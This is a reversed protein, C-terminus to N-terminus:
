MGSASSASRELQHEEKRLHALELSKGLNQNAVKSENYINTVYNSFQSAWLHGKNENFCLIARETNAAIERMLPMTKDLAQREWPALASREAELSEIEQGAHNVEERIEILRSLDSDSSATGIHVYTNMQDAQRRVQAVSDDIDRLKAQAENAYTSAFVPSILLLPMALL